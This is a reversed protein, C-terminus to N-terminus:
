IPVGFDIGAAHLAAFGPRCAQNLEELTDAPLDRWTQRPSKVSAACRALWDADAFEPGVFDTLKSLEGEADTFFNEYRLTLLTDKPIPALAKMGALIQNSWFQGCLPLPNRYRDVAEADFYEPLFVRLEPPVRDINSRDGSEFPNVGLLEGLRMMAVWTRLPPHDNISMAADRGDRVLHVFRADPFMQRIQGVMEMGMGSREIWAERGFHQRLWEFLHRYHVAVPAVPWTRIEAELADYLAEYDDTLHPLTAILIGPVGTQATFRAGPKEYPYLCEPFPLGLTLFFRGSLHSVISWFRNGDVPEPTFMEAAFQGGDSVMSFFESISLLKPHKRLMNSLMTSGCRGTGVVFVPATM